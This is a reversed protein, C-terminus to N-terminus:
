IGYQRHIHKKYRNVSIFYRPLWIVVGDFRFYYRGIKHGYVKKNTWRHVDKESMNILDLYAMKDKLMRKKLFDNYEKVDQRM